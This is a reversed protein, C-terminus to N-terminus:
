YKNIKRKFTLLPLEVKHKNYGDVLTYLMGYLTIRAPYKAM